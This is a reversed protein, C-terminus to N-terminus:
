NDGGVINSHTAFFGDSALFDRQMDIVLLACRRPKLIEPISYREPKFGLDKKTLPPPQAESM